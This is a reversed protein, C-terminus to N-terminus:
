EVEPYEAKIKFKHSSFPDTSTSVDFVLYDSVIKEPSVVVDGYVPTDLYVLTDTVRMVVFDRMPIGDSNDRKSRVLDGVEIPEDPKYHRLGM